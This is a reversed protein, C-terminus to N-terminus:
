TGVSLVLALYYRCPCAVHLMYCASSTSCAAHLTVRLLLRCAVHLVPSICCAVHLVCCRPMCRLMRRHLMCCAVHQCAVICAMCVHRHLAVHLMSCAVHLTSCAWRVSMPAVSCAMTSMRVYKERLQSAVYAVHQRAAISVHLMCHRAVAGVAVGVYVCHM